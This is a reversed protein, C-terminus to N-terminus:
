RFPLEGSLEYVAFSILLPVSFILLLIV